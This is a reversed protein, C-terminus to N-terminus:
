THSVDTIAPGLGAAAGANFSGPSPTLLFGDVYSNTASLSAFEIRPMILFDSDNASANLGQIALVNTGATLANRFASVDITEYEIAAADPRDAAAHADYGSSSGTSTPDVLDLTPNGFLSWDCNDAGRSSAVLTLFRSDGGISISRQSAQNAGNLSVSDVITGDLLVYMDTSAAACNGTAAIARFAAASMGPHAAEIADLDFTIGKSAHMGLRSATAPGGSVGTNDGNWIEDWSAGNGDSIGTAMLGTTSVPVPTTAAAGGDPVFVGDIFPHAAVAHYTNAPGGTINGRPTETPQGDLLSIGAPLGSGTGDGGGVMDALDLAMAARAPGFVEVEALSLTENALTAIRVFRGETNSPLTHVVDYRQGGFDTGGLNVTATYVPTQAADLVSLQVNTTTQADSRAFLNVYELPQADGLDVQWFQGVGAAASRYTPNVARAAHGDLNGDNARSALTGAAAPSATAPKGQALNLEVPAPRGWVEFEAFTMFNPEVQSLRQIRVKQGVVNRLDNTAWPKDRTSDTAFYDRLFVQTNDSDVITLRFNQVSSQAADTRPFIQLRDLYYDSGLDVEYFSPPNSEPTGTTHWVSGSAYNGNRNADIGDAFVTGYGESSGTANGAPALNASPVFSPANRRAVETGNLYAVFGDDYKMRLRLVDIATPDAVDFDTRIYASANVGQMEAQVDGGAGFLPAYDGTTDYGIGTAAASWASDDFDQETWAFALSDDAPVLVRSPAGADLLTSYAPQPVGGYSVDTAQPPYEPAFETVITTKDPAVLALYEGGASLEFDTHLQSGAVARNKNSAFVVLFAGSGLTISPFEWKDLNDANDTLHWGALDIPEDGRNEIEIWDSHDGDEDVLSTSNSAMFESIIPAAALLQRPELSELTFRRLRGTRRRTM